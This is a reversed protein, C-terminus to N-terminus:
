VASRLAMVSPKASALERILRHCNSLSGPTLRGLVRPTRAGTIAPINAPTQDLHLLGLLAIGAPRLAGPPVGLEAADLLRTGPLVAALEAALSSAQQGPRSLVLEEVRPMQPFDTAVCRAIESASSTSTGTTM